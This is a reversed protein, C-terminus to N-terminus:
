LVHSSGCAEVCRVDQVFGGDKLRIIAIAIVLGVCWFHFMSDTAMCRNTLESSKNIKVDEYHMQVNDCNNNTMLGLRGTM